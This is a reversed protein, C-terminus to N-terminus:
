GGLSFSIRSTKDPTITVSMSQSPGTTPKCGVVYNGAPLVIGGVPTPGYSRGAVSVNCFGGRSGVNLKGNGVPAPPTKVDEDSDKDTNEAHQGAKTGDDRLLVLDLEKTENPGARFRVTRGVYGTAAIVLKHEEDPTLGSADLAEYSKNDIFMKAGPANTKVVVRVTGAVLERDIRLTDDAKLTVQERVPAFGDMTLKLDIPTGCPLKGITAPTKESRLAGDIWISAGEPRTLLQVSGFAAVEEISPRVPASAASASISTPADVTRMRVFAYTGLSVAVLAVLGMAVLGISKGRSSATGSASELSGTSAPVVSFGTHSTTSEVADYGGIGTINQAAIVDALQKLDHLAEKQEALKDTYLTQMWDRMAITSVAVREDRIYAELDAQMERASQYRQERDKSLARMVIQELRPPYGARIKSPFPYERDCILRLTELETRGKFLRKGTTLEFLIIGAAFIDSRWDIAEGRAQEPSMYPVKGKLRGSKTDEGVHSGSKAIGFDVVKIDGGYTVVVNQPSIDRHVIRLPEGDLGRKEHAYALGACVGLIIALAHELPFEAMQLKKMQRVISRLDEGHIHEMAIYYAGEAHGVDYIQVVNPHSLTAAIRAEHLLMDIFAQDSNMSPLIRKIVIIKEFGAVSKQLALFLEAMGGTALRRLLTYKGFRKPMGEAAAQATGFYDMTPSSSEAM